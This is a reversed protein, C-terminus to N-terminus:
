RRPASVRHLVKGAPDREDRTARAADAVPQHLVEEPEAHLHDGDIEVLLIQLLLPLGQGPAVVHVEDVRVDTVAVLDPCRGCLGNAPEASDVHEAVVGADAAAAVGVFRVEIGPIARQADVQATDDVARLDDRRQYQRWPSPPCM